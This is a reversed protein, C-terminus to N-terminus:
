AKGRKLWEMYRSLYPNDTEVIQGLVIARIAAEAYPGITEGIRRPGPEKSPTHFTDYENLTAVIRDTRESVLGLPRILRRIADSGLDKRHLALMRQIIPRVTTARAQHTLIAVVATAAKREMGVAFLPRNGPFWRERLSGLRDIPNPFLSPIILTEELLCLPSARLFGIAVEVVRHDVEPASCAPCRESPWLGLEDLKQRFIRGDNPCELHITTPQLGASWTWPREECWLGLSWRDLASGFTRNKM